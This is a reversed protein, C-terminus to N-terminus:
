PTRVPKAGLTAKADPPFEVATGASESKPKNNQLSPTRLEIDAILRGLPGALLAPLVVVSSLWAVALLAAMVWGFRSILLLEAPYLLLLSLAIVLATQTMANGCNRMAEVISEERTKGQRLAIRFWTILHLTDDVAIGIAISGTLMTGIDLVQSSWSMLGFVVAVPLALLTGALLGARISRIHFMLTIAILVFTVGLSNVLSDLLATQARYFVPVAGTVSFWLGPANRTKEQLIGSLDRMVAAYDLDESMHTQATIRWTEDLPADHTWVFNTDNPAALYEASSAVEDTKIEEETRRSRVAYNMRIQREERSKPRLHIPQFDALSIAGSIRPHLRVTEEIERILELRELFFKKDSYEEGFHVLLDFSSTGGINEDLFRSDQVLRSDAPFYSGVKVELKLWQLGFGASVGVVVALLVIAKKNRCTMETIHGWLPSAEQKRNAGPRVNTLRLMAPLGVIAVIFSILTGITAFIGFDRIPGLRSISLSLLGIGTTANSLLCPWRGTQIAKQIPDDVGSAAAHRWYNVVHIAASITIVVTLTPMVITVMNMTHGAAPVLATTVIATFWSAVTVMLGVRLSRLLVISLLVGAVATIAFVPPRRLPDVTNWTAKLVEQDVALSTVLSGDAHFEEAKIGSEAAAAQISKMAAEPNAIGEDSFTLVCSVHRNVKSDGDTSGPSMQKEPGILVGTLRRIAENEDVKWRTIQQVVEAATRVKSIYPLQTVRKKFENNRPDSLSSTDWSVLIREEPPFFSELQELARAHEDDKSLWTALDDQLQIRPLQRAASIGVFLMIGIIVLSATKSPFAAQRM